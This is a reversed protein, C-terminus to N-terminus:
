NKLAKVFIYFDELSISPKKAVSAVWLRLFEFAAMNYVRCDWAHNAANSSARQWKYGLVQGKSDRVEVKSENAYQKFYDDGYDAPYFCYGNPPSEDSKKSLGLSGALRDKYRDVVALVGLLDVYGDIKKVSINPKQLSTETVGKVPYVKGGMKACFRYVFDTNYGSDILGVTLPTDGFGNRIWSEFLAWAGSNIDDTAGEFHLWDVSYSVESDGWGLLEVDIRNKHVDAGFTLFYVSEPINGKLYNSRNQMIKNYRPTEGREEWCEGLVTNIFPRLEAVNTSANLWQQVVSVWSFMGVPSYLANLHYSRYTESYSKTTARWEGHPLFWSKDQNTWFSGCRECVYGVSGLILDRNADLEYVIGGTAVGTKEDTTKHFNLTQFHGCDKCPVFYKRQDGRRHLRDIRSTHLVAPTSIYLIKRSTEYAATRKVALSVPDGEEGAVQPYGDVEDMLLYKMSNSRLKAPSHAGVALLYGGAYQKKRKTSGTKKSYGDLTGGGLPNFIKSALGSEALMKDVKEEIWLEASTQDQAVALINAPSHDIVYGVINEMVGTTAGIQAGKMFAVERIPSSPSFCDMIEKLYPAVSHDYYGVYPSTGAPLYRKQSAWQAVTLITRSETLKQVAEILYHIDSQEFDM